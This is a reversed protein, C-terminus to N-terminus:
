RHGGRGNAPKNADDEARRGQYRRELEAVVDDVGGGLPEPGALSPDSPESDGVALGEPEPEVERAKLVRDPAASWGRGAMLRGAVGGVILGVVFTVVLTWAPVVVAFSALDGGEM